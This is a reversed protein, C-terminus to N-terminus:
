PSYTWIHIPGTESAHRWQWRLIGRTVIAPVITPKSFVNHNTRLSPCSGLLLVSVLRVVPLILSLSLLAFSDTAARSSSDVNKTCEGPIKKVWHLQAAIWSIHQFILNIKHPRQLMNCNAAHAFNIQYKFHVLADYGAVPM